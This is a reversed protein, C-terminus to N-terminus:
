GHMANRDNILAEAWMTTEWQRQPKECTRLDWAERSVRYKGLM